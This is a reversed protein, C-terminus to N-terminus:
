PWIPAEWNSTYMRVLPVQSADLGFADLFQAHQAQAKDNPGNVQVFAEVCHPLMNAYHEGDVVFENHELRHKLIQWATQRQLYIGVDNPKWSRGCGDGPNSYTSVQRVLGLPHM